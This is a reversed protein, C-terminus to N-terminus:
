ALMLPLGATSSVKELLRVIRRRRNGIVDRVFERLKRVFILAQGERRQHILSLVDVQNDMRNEFTQRVACEKRDHDQQQKRRSMFGVKMVSKLIGILMVNAITSIYKGADRDIHNRKRPQRDRDAHSTSLEITTM